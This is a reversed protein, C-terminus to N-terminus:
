HGHQRSLSCLFGHGEQFSTVRDGQGRVQVERAQNTLAPTPVGSPIPRQFAPPLPARNRPAMNGPM